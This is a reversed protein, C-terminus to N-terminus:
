GGHRRTLAILAFTLLWLLAAGVVAVTISNVYITFSVTIPEM